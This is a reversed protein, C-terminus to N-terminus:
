RTRNLAKLFLHAQESSCPEVSPPEPWYRLQRRLLRSDLPIITASVGDRKWHYCLEPIEPEVFYANHPQFMAAICSIKLVIDWRM